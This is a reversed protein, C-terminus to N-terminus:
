CRKERSHCCCPQKFSCCVYFRKDLLGLCVSLVIAKSIFCYPSATFSYPTSVCLAVFGGAGHYGHTVGHSCSDFDRRDNMLKGLTQQQWSEEAVLLLVKEKTRWSQRRDRLVKRQSKDNSRGNICGTIKNERSWTLRHEKIWDTWMMVPLFNSATM